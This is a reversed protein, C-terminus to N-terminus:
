KKVGKKRFSDGLFFIAGTLSITVYSLSYILPSLAADSKLLGAYELLLQMIKDRVGLGGISGPICSAVNGHGSALFIGLPDGDAGGGTLIMAAFLLGLLLFPHIVTVGMLCSLLFTKWKKRYLDVSSLVRKLRGRVLKDGWEVIRNIFSIRLILDHFLLFFAGGIGVCCFLSLTFVAAKVEGSFTLIKQLSLLTLLLTLGFLAIMGSLRDAFISTVGELKKGEKTEKALVAAKVVDGGVAGGPLCLSFFMGQLTLTFARFFTINLEQAELLLKWRLATFSVQCFIMFLCAGWAFFLRKGPITRLTELDIDKIVWYILIGAIALKLLHFILEKGINKKKEPSPPNEM